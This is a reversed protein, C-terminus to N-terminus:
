DRCYQLGFVPKRPMLPLTVDAELGALAARRRVIHPTLAQHSFAAIPRPM